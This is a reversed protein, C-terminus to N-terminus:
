LIEQRQEKVLTKRYRRATRKAMTLPFMAYLLWLLIAKINRECKLPITIDRRINKKCNNFAERNESLSNSRIIGDIISRNFRYKHYAWEKEIQSNVIRWHEKQVELSRLGCYNSELNFSRMASDPNITQHYVSLEGVAVREVNQLIDINFLMGEGYWIQSDFNINYDKIVRMSYIKNWVAVFIEGSYIWEIAKEADVIEYEDISVNDLVSYNNKSFAIDCENKMALELFYAVYNTDVWDDGDVFMVYEGKAIRLGENRACSVGQNETHIVQIRSDRQQLRDIIEGSRDPSGDDVLIIDINKHTQIILSNVCRQIYKEVNYIPVIISVKVNECNAM